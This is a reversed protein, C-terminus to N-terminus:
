TTAATKIDAIKGKLQNRASIKLTIEPGSSRHDAIPGHAGESVSWFQVVRRSIAFLRRM